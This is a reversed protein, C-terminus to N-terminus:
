LDTVKIYRTRPTKNFMCACHWKYLPEDSLSTSSAARKTAQRGDSHMDQDTQSSSKSDSDTQEPTQAYPLTEADSDNQNDHGDPLSQMQEQALPEPTPSAAGVPVDIDIDSESVHREYTTKRSPMDDLLRQRHERSLEWHDINALCIHDRHVVKTQRTKLDIILYRHLSVREIVVYYPEWIAAIKSKPQNRWFVAQGPRFEKEVAKKNIIERQKRRSEQTRERTQQFAKHLRSVGTYIPDDAYQKRRPMTILEHPLNAAKGFLLYHSSYLKSASPTTRLSFLVQPLMEDWNQPNEAAVCSLHSIITRNLNEASGQSQPRNPASLIHISGLSKNLYSM